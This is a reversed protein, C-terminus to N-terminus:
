LSGVFNSILVITINCSVIHEIPMLCYVISKAMDFMCIYTLLVLIVNKKQSAVDLCVSSETENLRNMFLLPFQLGQM